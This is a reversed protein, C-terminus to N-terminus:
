MRLVKLFWVQCMPSKRNPPGAFLNMHGKILDDCPTVEYILFMKDGSGCSRYLCFNNSNWNWTSPKPRCTGKIMYDRSTACWFLFMNGSGFFRSADFKAYHHSLNLYDIKGIWMDRQDHPRTIDRSFISVKYRWKWSVKLCWVQYHQCLIFSKWGCPWILNSWM